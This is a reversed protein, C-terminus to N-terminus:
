VSCAATVYQLSTTLFTDPCGIISVSTKGHNEEIGGTPHWYVLYYRSKITVSGLSKPDM